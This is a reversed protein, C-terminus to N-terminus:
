RLAGRLIPSNVYQTYHPTTFYRINSGPLAPIGGNHFDVGAQQIEGKEFCSLTERVAQTFLGPGTFALIADKPNSFVRGFYIDYNEVILQIARALIGHGAVFGFGWQLVVKTPEASVRSFDSSPPILCENKEYSILASASPNHLSTIPINCGKSIDFYYGGRDFLICYRFIDAKMPGFIAKDYIEFIPHNGWHEKMYGTMESDVFLKWGLDGNIERFKLVESHHTQGLFENTWTQYCIPPIRQNRSNMGSADVLAVLPFEKIRIQLSTYARGLLGVM